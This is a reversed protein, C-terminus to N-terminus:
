SQVQFDFLIVECSVSSVRIKSNLQINVKKGAYHSLLQKQNTQKKLDQAKM